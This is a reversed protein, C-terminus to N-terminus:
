INQPIIEQTNDLYNLPHPYKLTNNFYKPNNKGILSTDPYQEQM